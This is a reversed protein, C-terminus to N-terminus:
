FRRNKPHLPVIKNENNNERVYRALDPLDQRHTRSATKRALNQLSIATEGDLNRNLAENQWTELQTAASPTDVSQCGCFLIIAGLLVPYKM